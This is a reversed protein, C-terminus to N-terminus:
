SMGGLGVDNMMMVCQDRVCSGVKQRQEKRERHETRSVNQRPVLTYKDIVWHGGSSCSIDDISDGMHQQLHCKGEQKRSAALM